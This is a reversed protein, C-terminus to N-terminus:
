NVNQCATACTSGQQRPQDLLQVHVWQVGLPALRFRWCAALWPGSIWLPLPWRDEEGEPGEGGWVNSVARGDVGDDVSASSRNWKIIASLQYLKYFTPQPNLDASPGRGCLHKSPPDASRRRGCSFSRIETRPYGRGCDACRQHIGVPVKCRLPFHGFEDVAVSHILQTYENESLASM